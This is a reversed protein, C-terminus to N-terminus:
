DFTSSNFILSSTEMFVNLSFSFSMQQDSSATESVCSSTGVQRLASRREEWQERDEELQSTRCFLRPGESSFVSLRSWVCFSRRGWPKCWFCLPPLNINGSSETRGKLRNDDHHFFFPDLKSPNEERHSVGCVCLYYNLRDKRRRVTHILSIGDSLHVKQAGAAGHAVTVARRCFARCLTTLAACLVTPCLRGVVVSM